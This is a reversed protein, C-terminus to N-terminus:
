MGPPRPNGPPSPKKPSPAPPKLREELFNDVEKLWQNRLEDREMWIEHKADAIDVRRANPLLTLARDQAPRDVIKEQGSIEMLIPTKIAKLYDEDNLVDISAFTHYVWGYTPDGIKLADNAKLNENDVGFRVPDSTKNNGKFNEEVWDTGGPIYKELYGGAKAFKAMQRALKKPMGHTVIDIMPSTLIASDFVGDHENLYRLGIHAGMSHGMYVLPKKATPEVISTVFQHLMAIQEDYGEHHAKASGNIYRASGGQGRWDMMYVDFGRSNLDRMVEFYKEVNERFGGGIVITGKAAGDAKSHGYRIDAGNANTFHGETFNPPQNFSAPLM